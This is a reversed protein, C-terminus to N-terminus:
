YDCISEHSTRVKMENNMKSLEKEKQRLELVLSCMEVDVALHESDDTGVRFDVLHLSV